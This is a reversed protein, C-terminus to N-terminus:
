ARGETLQRPALDAMSWREGGPWTVPWSDSRLYLPHWPQGQATLKLVHLRVGKSRLEQRLRFGDIHRIGNGWCCVFLRARQAWRLIIALNEPGTPDNVELLGRPDTSRWGYVNLMVLHGFGWERAFRLCRRITPDDDNEDATSPNLGCFVVTPKSPDWERWLAYRYRRCPSFKAGTRLNSM